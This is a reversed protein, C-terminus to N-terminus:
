LGLGDRLPLDAARAETQEFFHAITTVALSSAVNGANKGGAGDAVVFLSLDPRLLIADENHPRGGIHTDGAAEVAVPSQARTPEAM